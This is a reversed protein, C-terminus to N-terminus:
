QPGVDSDTAHPICSLIQPELGGTQATLPPSLDTTLYNWMPQKSAVSVDPHPILEVNFSLVETVRFGISRIIVGDFHATVASCAQSCALALRTRRFGLSSCGPGEAEPSEKLQGKKQYTLSTVWWPVPGTTSAM